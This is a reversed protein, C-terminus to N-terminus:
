RGIQLRHSHVNISLLVIVNLSQPFTIQIYCLPFIFRFGSCVCYALAELINHQLVACVETVILIRMVVFTLSDVATRISTAVHVDVFGLM